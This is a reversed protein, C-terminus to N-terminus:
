KKGLRRYGMEFVNKALLYVAETAAPKKAVVDNFLVGISTTGHDTNFRMNGIRGGIKRTAKDIVVYYLCNEKAIASYLWKQFDTENESYEAQIWTYLKEMGPKSLAKYLDQGHYTIDLPELRVYRGELITTKCPPHRPTWIRLM